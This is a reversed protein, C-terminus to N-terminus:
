RVSEDSPPAPLEEVELAVKIVENVVRADLQDAFPLGRDLAQGLREAYGILKAALGPRRYNGLVGNHLLNYYIVAFAALASDGIRGSSQSSKPKGSGVDSPHNAAPETSPNAPKEAVDSVAPVLGRARGEEADLWVELDFGNRKAAEIYDRADIFNRVMDNTSDAVLKGSGDIVLGRRWLHREIELQRTEIGPLRLRHIEIGARNELLWARFPQASRQVELFRNRPLDADPAEAFIAGLRALNDIDL